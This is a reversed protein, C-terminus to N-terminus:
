VPVEETGMVHRRSRPAREREYMILYPRVLASDEGALWEHLGYPSRHPPLGCASTGPEEPGQGPAPATPRECARRRGTGPKLM